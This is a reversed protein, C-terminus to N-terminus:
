GIAAIVAAAQSRSLGARHLEHESAGNVEETVLYGAGLLENRAPFTVPIATGAIARRKGDWVPGFDDDLATHQAFQLFCYRRHSQVPM